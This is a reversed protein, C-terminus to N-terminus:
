RLPSPPSRAARARARARARAKEDPREPKQDNSLDKAALTGDPQLRALVARSDGAWASHVVVGGSDDVQLLCTVATTGSQSCDISVTCAHDQEVYAASQASALDPRQQRATKLLAPFQAKCQRSVLHGHEGHGDFVGFLVEPASADPMSVMYSDQNTKRAGDLSCGADSCVAWVSRVSAGKPAWLGSQVVRHKNIVKPQSMGGAAPEAASAPSVDPEHFPAESVSTHTSGRRHAESRAGAPPSPTSTLGQSLPNASPKKSSGRPTSGKKSGSRPTTGRSPRSRPSAPRGNRSPSTTPM